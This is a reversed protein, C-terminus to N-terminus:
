VEAKFTSGLRPGRGFYHRFVNFLPRYLRPEIHSTGPVVINTHAHMRVSRTGAHRLSRCLRAELQLPAEAIRPANVNLSPLAHWDALAFKDPEHRYGKAQKWPPVPDRGSTPALREVSERM